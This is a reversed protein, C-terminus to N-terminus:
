RIEIPTGIPTLRYLRAMDANKVRVCGHSPAGPILYPQDTGHIGVVGGGPWDSLKAYAATGLAYRGYAPANTFRLKERVWFHGNPTPTSPKGVGVRIRLRAYSGDYLTL